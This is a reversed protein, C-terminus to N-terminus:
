PSGNFSKLIPGQHLLEAGGAATGGLAWIHRQQAAYVTLPCPCDNAYKTEGLSARLVRLLLQKSKISQSITCERRELIRFSKWSHAHLPTVLMAVVFALM